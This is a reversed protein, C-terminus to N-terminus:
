GSNMSKSQFAKVLGTLQGYQGYQMIICSSHSSINDLRMLPLFGAQMASAEQLKKQLDETEERKKAVEEEWLMLWKLLQCCIPYSSVETCHKVDKWISALKSNKCFPSMTDWSVCGFFAASLHSMWLPGQVHCQVHTGHTRCRLLKKCNRRCNKTRRSRSSWKQRCTEVVYHEHCNSLLFKLFPKPKSVKLNWQAEQCM